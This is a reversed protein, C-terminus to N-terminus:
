KRCLISEMKTKIFIRDDKSIVLWYDMICLTIFYISFVLILRLGGQILANHIYLAPIVAILGVLYSITTKELLKKIKLQPIKKKLIIINVCLVVIFVLLDIVYVTNVNDTVFILALYSLVPIFVYLTGTIFSIQKIHGEAHVGISIISNILGVVNSILFIRCFMVTHNPVIGLWMNLIYHMELFIPVSIFIILISTYKLADEILIQMKDIRHASYSKIIQPRFATIINATFGRLTGSVTGAISSAANLAVGFFINVIYIIGQAKATVCLNGYLDWGSFSLLPKFISKDRVKHFKTEVFNRTCYVRYISMILVSVLFTLLSYLKLKDWNGILLIYVIVLRLIINLIEIYAYINMKEHAIICANYPTQTISLMASFISLQYVWLAAEMRNDPIILKNCLFWLGVTEAFIFVILAIAIHIILSMSFTDKLRKLEGTGLEFIIYRSTAGSMSANLFGLMGVVGGVVGYIGFDEVGLTNLIVRSTYLGVIMSIFMRIYLVIANKAIRRNNTVEESM